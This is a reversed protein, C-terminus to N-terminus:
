LFRQSSIKDTRVWRMGVRVALRYLARKVITSDSMRIEIMSMYKEWIRPVSAFITPSVERLNMPLTDLSEVFNVTGGSYIAQFVSLLNEYIHALPLYSLLEDDPRFAVTQTFAETLGLINRHSIMAGKPRGTTGSTYIMMATEQPDIADMRETVCSPYDKLYAEGQELFADYFMIGEHSFGWLGKPDWVIVKKLQELDPYIQLVKDVQEENEVFLMKSESHGVVYAVQEPANTSYVGCTVCGIAMTALHCVLWEPRNDGLIAVRDGPELGAGIMGASTKKVRKGYEDWSIRNWIGFEKRRLAIRSRQTKVQQFFLHPFTATDIGM